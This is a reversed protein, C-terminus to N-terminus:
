AGQTLQNVSTINPNLPVHKSAAAAVATVAPAVPAADAPLQNFAGNSYLGAKVQVLASFLHSLIIFSIITCSM